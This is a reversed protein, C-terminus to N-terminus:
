HTAIPVCVTQSSDVVKGRHTTVGNCLGILKGDKFIPQHRERRVVNLVSGDEVLISYNFSPRPRPNPPGAFGNPFWELGDKSWATTPVKTPRMSHLLMHFAGTGNDAEPDFWIYPDEGYVKTLRKLEYPGKWNPAVYIAIQRWPLGKDPGQTVLVKCALVVTGNKLFTASPNNCSWGLKKEWKHPQWGKSISSSVLLNPTVEKPLVFPPYPVPNALRAENSLFESQPTTGNTCDTRPPGNVISNHGDGIHYILYVPDGNEQEIPGHVSPNHAWVPMIVSAQTNNRFVFPGTPSDVNDNTAMCIRSNTKWTDLGCHDEFDSFFMVWHKQEAEWIVSGGWSSSHKRFLGAVSSSAPLLRLTTCNPGSWHVNCTCVGESTCEGSYSCDAATQCAGICLPALCVFVFFFCAVGRALM